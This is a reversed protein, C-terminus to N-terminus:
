SREEALLLGRRRVRFFRDALGLVDLVEEPRGTAGERSALVMGLVVEGPQEQEVWLREVLPRLDYARGRRQRPLSETTLLEEVRRRVEEVPKETEVAVSYEAAQVLTPLAPGAPDAEEARIIGLGEPLTKALAEVAAQPDVPRALWLDLLEEDAAFGVPLASAVQLRPRPHFGGSYALPLGARRAAREWARTRELHSAYRLPGDVSYTIRLRHRM